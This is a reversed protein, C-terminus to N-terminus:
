TNKKEAWYSNVEYLTDFTGADRWYGKLESWALNGEKLYLSNLDTIELEGRQSPNIRKIKKFVTSDYLYLGTVAFSSKPEKPKEILEIINRAKDFTPVGFRQPDLVEKLFIKAGTTFNIVDESIDADTCNDGLIVALTESDAFDEALSLAQAIGGEKEQFAFSLNKVGVEKGNKLVRMFHGAHPGGVVILIDTIGSKVLTEIPYFIMPKDYVPLLHKNTAHTLPYLRTGLGGALIIGKM